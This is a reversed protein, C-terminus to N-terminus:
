ALYAYLTQRSIGFKKAVAAKVHGESVEARLQEIQEKDLTPKRGKYVNGKAKAAAIGQAQRERTLSREFEAFAGMVGLMLQGMPNNKDPDFVLSESIFHVKVGKGTLSKVLGLLDQLSRGLRDLSHVILTDGARLYTLAEQLAPRNTDKGSAKDEFIRDPKFIGIAAHQRDSNQEATSCRVYAVIQGKDM